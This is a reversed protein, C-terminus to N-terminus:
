FWAVIPKRRTGPAEGASPIGRHAQRASRLHSLYIRRRAELYSLKQTGWLSYLAINRNGSADKGKKIWRHGKPDSWYQIRREFWERTPIGTDPDEEGQWVKSAQRNSTLLLTCCLSM